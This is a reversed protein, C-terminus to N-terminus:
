RERRMVFVDSSDNMSARTTGEPFTVMQQFSGVVYVAGDAAAAADVAEDGGPGGVLEAWRFAGDASTSVVAGDTGMPTVGGGGLDVADRVEGVAYSTGAADVSLGVARITGAGIAKSWRHSGMGDYSALFGGLGGGSSVRPGGAEVWNEFLGSVYIRDSGDVALAFAVALGSNDLVRSWNHSGDANLSAVFPDLGGSGSRPGGGFDVTGGVSGDVLVRGVGDTVIGRVEDDGTTAFRTSWRHRGDAEFSTVFADDGGVGSLSRGLNMSGEYFGGVFVRGSADVAVARAADFMPGGTGRSWRFGLTEDLALVLINDLDALPLPGDGFDPAADYTGVVYVSGDAGVALDTVEEDDSGGFRASRRYAGDPAFSAVFVDTGGVSTLPGGGLDITEEFHGAVWVDGAADVVVATAEDQGSGPVAVVWETTPLGGDLSADIVGGDTSADVPPSRDVCGATPDCVLDGTCLSPDTELICVADL